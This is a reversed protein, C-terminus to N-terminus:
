ENGSKFEPKFIYSVYIQVARNAANVYGKGSILYDYSNTNFYAAVDLPLQDNYNADISYVRGHSFDQYFSKKGTMANLSFGLELYHSPTIKQKYAVDLGFYYSFIPTHFIGSMLTENGYSITGDPYEFYAEIRSNAVGIKPHFSFRNKLLSLPFGINLPTFMSNRFHRKGNSFECTGTAQINLYNLSVFFIKVGLQYGSAYGFGSMGKIVTGTSAQYDTYSAAFQEFSKNSLTGGLYAFYVGYNDEYSPAEDQALASGCLFYLAFLYIPPRM